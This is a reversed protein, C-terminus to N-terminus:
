GGGEEEGVTSITVEFWSVVDEKWIKFM